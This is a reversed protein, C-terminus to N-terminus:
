QFKRLRNTGTYNITGAYLSGNYVALSGVIFTLNSGLSSWTTGNWRAVNRVSVSGAGSFDGGVFLEGNYVHLAKAGNLGGSLSGGVSSWSSGNWKALYRTSGADAQTFTGAVYLANNYVVLDNATGNLGSVGVQVWSSGNWKAIRNTTTSGSMTFSGAAYLEGNYVALANVTNNFGAGVPVWSSGNHKAVRNYTVSNYTTFYGGIYLSGNHSEISNVNSNMAFTGATWTSGTWQACMAMGFSQSFAGGGYLTNNHVGFNTFGQGNVGSLNIPSISSGNWTAAGFTPSSGVTFFNGAIFLKNDFVFLGNISGDITAGADAWATGTISGNTPPTVPTASPPFEEPYVPLDKTCSVTFIALFFFATFLTLTVKM